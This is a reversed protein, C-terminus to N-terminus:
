KGYVEWTIKDHSRGPFEGTEMLRFGLMEPDAEFYRDAPYHRNWHYLVLTDAQSIWDGAPRGEVFYHDGSALDEVNRPAPRCTLGAMELLRLSIPDAVLNDGARRHLDELLAADRSQRRHNFSLGKRDDLCFYLTM